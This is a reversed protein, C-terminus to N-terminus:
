RGDGLNSTADSTGKEPTGEAASFATLRMRSFVHRLLIFSIRLTTCQSADLYGGTLNAITATMIVKSVMVSKAPIESGRECRDVSSKELAQPMTTNDVGTRMTWWMRMLARM